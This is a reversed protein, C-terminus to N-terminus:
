MQGLTVENSFARVANFLFKNAIQKDDQSTASKANAKHNELKTKYTDVNSQITAISTTFAEIQAQALTAKDEWKPSFGSGFNGVGIKQGTVSGSSIPIDKLSALETAQTGPNKGDLITEKNPDLDYSVFNECMFKIDSDFKVSTDSIVRSLTAIIKHSAFDILENGEGFPNNPRQGPATKLDNIFAWFLKNAQLVQFTHRWTKACDKVIQLCVNSTVRLKSEKSVVRSNDAKCIKCLATQRFSWISNYCKHREPTSTPSNSSYTLGFEAQMSTYDASTFYDSFISDFNEAYYASYRSLPDNQDSVEYQFNIREALFRLKSSNIKVHDNFATQLTQFNNAFGKWTTYQSKLVSTLVGVKCCSGTSGSLDTQCYGSAIGASDTSTLVKDIPIPEPPVPGDYTFTEGYYLGLDTQFTKLRKLLPNYKRKDPLEHKTHCRNDFNLYAPPPAPPNQCRVHKMFTFALFALLSLIM